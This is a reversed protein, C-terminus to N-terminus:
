DILKKPDIDFERCADVFSLNRKTELYDIGNGRRGCGSRGGSTSSMCLFAGLVGVGPVDNADPYVHFRDEGGCWPCAGSYEVSSYRQNYTRNALPTSLDTEVLEKITNM